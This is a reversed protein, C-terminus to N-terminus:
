DSLVKVLSGIAVAGGVIFFGIFALCISVSTWFNMKKEDKSELQRQVQKDVIQKVEVPTMDTLDM